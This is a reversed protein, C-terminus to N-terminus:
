MDMFDDNFGEGDEENAEDIPNLPKLDENDDIAYIEEVNLKQQFIPDEKETVWEDDSSVDEFIILEIVAQRKLNRERLKINYMVFVLDNMKKQQLQNRRKSHVMEFASWNRECGLSSYTLSLIRIIFRKLEPCEDGYSDWWEAPSKKSRTLIANDLGFLWRAAKFTDMQCDIKLRENSDPVMRQLCKYVGMKVDADLHFSPSYQFQPNLFYAAAHLPQHLQSAWRADIITCIPEYWKKIGNFNKKIEEKARDMAGYIFEMAPREDSDVLRLIKILPIAAKLCNAVNIWFNRNDFAVGEVRKRQRTRAFKSSKWKSSTFLNMLEGKLQNLRQLTLYSIAFRTVAPRILEKGDRFEKMWHNLMCRLYIYSVIMRGDEITESHMDIKKEFNELMLDICYTACLTWFLKKRKEMLMEGALKYNYANNTVVQVVNEERVKEVIEDLMEFVMQGTKSIDSTDRSSLFITGSPSNYYGVDREEKKFKENLTTQRSSNKTVFEDLAGGQKRKKSQELAICESDDDDIDVDYLNQKKKKQSEETHAQLIKQFQTRVEEPVQPYLEVNLHTGALHHKHRYIGGSHSTNCYRCKVKKSTGDEVGHECGPDLIQGLANKRTTKGSSGASSM